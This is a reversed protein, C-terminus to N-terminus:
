NKIGILIKVDTDSIYEEFDALFTRKNSTNIEFYNWIEIWMNIVGDPQTGSADFELYDSEAISVTTLYESSSVGNFAVIHDFEGTHDSEYHSYLGFPMESKKDIITKMAPNQFATNWHKGIEGGKNNNSTRIKTGVLSFAELHVKKPSM